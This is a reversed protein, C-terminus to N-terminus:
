IIIYISAKYLSPDVRWSLSIPPPYMEMELMLKRYHEDGKKVM